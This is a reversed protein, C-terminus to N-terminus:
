SPGWGVRSPSKRHASETPEYEHRHRHDGRCTISPRFRGDVVSELVVQRQSRLRLRVIRLLEQTGVLSAISRLLLLERRAGDLRDRALRNRRSTARARRTPARRARTASVIRRRLRRLLHDPVGLTVGHDAGSRARHDTRDRTAVLDLTPDDAGGRSTEEAGHDAAGDVNLAPSAPLEVGAPPPCVSTPPM